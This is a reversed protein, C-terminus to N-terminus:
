SVILYLCCFNLVFIFLYIFLCVHFCLVLDSKGCLREDEGSACEAIGNCRWTMPICWREPCLYEDNECSGTIATLVSIEKRYGVCDDV